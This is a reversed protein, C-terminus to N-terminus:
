VSNTPKDKLRPRAPDPQGNHQASEEDREEHEAVEFRLLAPNGHEDAVVVRIACAGDDHGKSGTVVGAEGHHIRGPWHRM